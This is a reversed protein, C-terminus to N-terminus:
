RVIEFIKCQRFDLLKIGYINGTQKVFNIKSIFLDFMLNNRCLEYEGAGVYKCLEFQESLASLLLFFYQFHFVTKRRLLFIMKSRVWWLFRSFFIEFLNTFCISNSLWLLPSSFNYSKLNTQKCDHLLFFCKQSMFYCFLFM